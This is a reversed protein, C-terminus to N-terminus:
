PVSSLALASRLRRLESAAKDDHFNFRVALHDELMQNFENASNESMVGRAPKAPNGPSGTGGREGPGRYRADALRCPGNAYYSCVCAQSFGTVPAAVQSVGHEPLLDPFGAAGTM